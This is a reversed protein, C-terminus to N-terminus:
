SFTPLFDHSLPMNISTVQLFRLQQGHNPLTKGATAFIPTAYLLIDFDPPHINTVQYSTRLTFDVQTQPISIYNAHERTTWVKTPIRSAPLDVFMVHDTPSKDYADPKNENIALEREVRFHPSASFPATPSNLIAGQNLYTVATNLTVNSGSLKVPHLRLKFGIHFTENSMLYNLMLPSPFTLMTNGSFYSFRGIFSSPASSSSVTFKSVYVEGPQPMTQDIPTVPLSVNSSIPGAVGLIPAPTTEVLSPSLPQTSM